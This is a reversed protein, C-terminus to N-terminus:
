WIEFIYKQLLNTKLLYIYLHTTIYSFLALAFVCKLSKYKQNNIRLNVMNQKCLSSICCYFMSIQDCKDVVKEMINSKYIIKFKDHIFDFYKVFCQTAQPGLSPVNTKLM